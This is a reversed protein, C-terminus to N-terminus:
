IRDIDTRLRNLSDFLRPDNSEFRIGMSDGRAWMVRGLFDLPESHPLDLRMSVLTMPELPDDTEVGLGGECLDRARDALRLGPWRLSVSFNVPVRQHRRAQTYAYDKAASSEAEVPKM